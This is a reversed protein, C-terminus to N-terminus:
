VEKKKSLNDPSLICDRMIRLAGDVQNSGDDSVDRVIEVMHDNQSVLFGVSRWIQPILKDPETPEGELVCAHHDRWVITVPKRKPKKM